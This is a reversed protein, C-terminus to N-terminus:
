NRNAAAALLLYALSATLVFGLPGGAITAAGVAAVIGSTVTWRVGPSMGRRAPVNDELAKVLHRMATYEVLTTADRTAFRTNCHSCTATEERDVEVPRQCTPCM